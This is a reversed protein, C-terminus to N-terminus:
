GGYVQYYDYAKLRKSVVELRPCATLQPDFHIADFFADVDVGGDIAAEKERGADLDDRLREAHRRNRTM